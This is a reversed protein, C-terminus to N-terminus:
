PKSKEGVIAQFLADREAPALEDLGQSMLKGVLQTLQPDKANLVEELLWQPVNDERRPSRGLEKLRDAIRDWIRKSAETM